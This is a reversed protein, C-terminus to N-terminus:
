EHEIRRIIGHIFIAIAQILQYIQFIYKNVVEGCQSTPKMCERHPYQQHILMINQTYRTLRETPSLQNMAALMEIMQIIPFFQDTTGKILKIQQSKKM